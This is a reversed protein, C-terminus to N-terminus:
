EEYEDDIMRDNELKLKKLYLISLVCAVILGTTTLAVIGLIMYIFAKTLEGLQSNSEAINGEKTNKIDKKNKGLLKKIQPSDKMLLGHDYGIDESSIKKDTNVEIKSGIKQTDSTAVKKYNSNDEPEALQQTTNDETIEEDSVNKLQAFDTNGEIFDSVTYYFVIDRGMPEVYFSTRIIVDKSPIEFRYDRTEGTENTVVAETSYFDEDDKEQVAFTENSIYNALNYRVSLFYRGDDEELLAQPHLVNEAMGQGIGANNGADEIVGTIPHAYYAKTTGIEKSYAFVGNVDFIFLMLLFFCIIKNKM